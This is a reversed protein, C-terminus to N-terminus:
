RKQVKLEAIKMNVVTEVAAMHDKSSQLDDKLEQFRQNDSENKNKLREDLRILLETNQSFQANWSKDQDSQKDIIRWYLVGTSSVILLILAIGLGQPIVWGKEINRGAM